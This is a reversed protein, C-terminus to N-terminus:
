KLLVLENCHECFGGCGNQGLGSVNVSGWKDVYIESGRPMSRKTSTRFDSCFQRFNAILLVQPVHRVVITKIDLKNVSNLV